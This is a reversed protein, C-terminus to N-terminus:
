MEATRETRSSTPRSASRVEAAIFLKEAILATAGNRRSHQVKCSCPEHLSMRYAKKGGLQAQQSPICSVSQCGGNSTGTVEPPADRASLDGDRTCHSRSMRGIEYMISM